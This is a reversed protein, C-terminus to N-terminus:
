CGTCGCGGGGHSFSGSRSSMNCAAYDAPNIVDGEENTRSYPNNYWSAVAQKNAANITNPHRADGTKKLRADAAAAKRIRREIMQQDAYDMNHSVYGEYGSTIKPGEEPGEEPDPTGLATKTM